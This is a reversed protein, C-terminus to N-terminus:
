IYVLVLILTFEAKSGIVRRSTAGEEPLPAAPCSVVASSQQVGIESCGIFLTRTKLKNLQTM